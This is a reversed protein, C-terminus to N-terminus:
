RANKFNELVRLNSQAERDNPDLRAAERLHKEAEALNKQKLYIGGLMAHAIEDDPELEVVRLFNKQAEELRNQDIQILALNGLAKTHNPNLRITENFQPIAMDLRNRMRGILGILYHAEDYNPDAVIAKQFHRLADDLRRQAILFQGYKVHAKADNPNQKLLYEAFEIGDRFLKKDYEKRLIEADAPNRPLVQLWLEGMEDTTQAGYRVRVPPNKPNRTNNTSNDYSFRMKLASGRPAFVPKQFRYDGQWNFNWDPIRLLWNTQGNPLQVCGQLDKGLYHAHPLVGLVDVDVPLTFSDTITYNSEGPPIGIQYTSLVLKFPFRTPPQDVFYFALSSQLPEPKGSPQLHLQLVLDCNPPLRWSMDPPNRSPRKGPQWSLFHGDPSRATPPTDMGEFGPELDRADLDRSARTSDLRVFAHHITRSGPQFEVATVYQTKSTQIPIVFSRYVDRGEAPVIYAPTQVVLDPKGLTWGEPWDPMKPLDSPDGEPAGTAAWDVFTQIQETTLIREGEFHSYTPDPLWPPMIRKRTVEAIQKSHKSADAFTLLPFPASQGPRHCGSCNQFLLPAIDKTFTPEAACIGCTLIVFSFRALIM